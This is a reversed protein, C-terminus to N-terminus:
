RFLHSNFIAQVGPLTLLVGFTIFCVGVLSLGTLREGLVIVGLLIAVVFSIKDIPAVGSDPGVKLAAFYFLWSFGTALGSLVLFIWTRSTIRPLAEIQGQVLVIGLAFIAVVVTRILTALNSPIEEVGLKALLATIGAFVASLLALTTWNM